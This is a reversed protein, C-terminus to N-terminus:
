NELLKLCETIGESLAEEYSKFYGISQDDQSSDLINSRFYSWQEKGDKIREFFAEVSYKKEKRLWKQAEWLTPASCSLSNDNHNHYYTSVQLDDEYDTIYYHDCDYDFGLDKLDRAQPYTVFDETNM